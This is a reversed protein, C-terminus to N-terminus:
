KVIRSAIGIGFTKVITKVPDSSGVEVGGVSTSSAGEQTVSEFERRNGDVILVISARLTAKNEGALGLFKSKRQLNMVEFELTNGKKEEGAVAKVGRSNLEKILALQLANCYGGANFGSKAVTKLLAESERIKPTLVVVEQGPLLRINKRSEDREAIQTTLRACSMIFVIMLFSLAWQMRRFAASSGPLPNTILTLNM